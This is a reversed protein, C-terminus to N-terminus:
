IGTNGLWTKIGPDDYYDHATGSIWNFKDQECHYTLIQGSNETSTM